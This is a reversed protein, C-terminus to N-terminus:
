HLREIHSIGSSPRAVATAGPRPTPSMAPHIASARSPPRAAPGYAGAAGGAPMGRYPTTTSAAGGGYPSVGPAARSPTPRRQPSALAFQLSELEQALAGVEQMAETRQAAVRAAHSSFPAPGMAALAPSAGGVLGIGGGGGAAAMPDASLRKQSPPPPPQLQREDHVGAYARRLEGLERKAAALAAKAGEERRKAEAAEEKAKALAAASEDREQRAAASQRREAKLRTSANTEKAQLEKLEDKAAQLQKVLRRSERYSGMM